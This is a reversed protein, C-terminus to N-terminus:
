MEDYRRIEWRSSTSKLEFREGAVIIEDKKLPSTTITEADADLNIFKKWFPYLDIFNGAVHEFRYESVGEIEMAPNGGVTNIWFAVLLKNENNEKDSYLVVYHNHSNLAQGEKEFVFDSTANLAISDALQRVETLDTSSFKVQAAITFTSIVLIFFILHEKKM